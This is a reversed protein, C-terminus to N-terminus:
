RPGRRGCCSTAPTGSSGVPRTTSRWADKPRRPSRWASRASNSTSGSGSRARAPAEEAQVREIWDAAQRALLNVVHLDRDAPCRPTRYHTSLMGVVQGSRGVLPTSQVARVGAALVAGLSPTGVFIPSTTVDEVVTRENHRMATGCSGQGEHVADFFELFPAECGRSAVIKLAGSGRDLFQINGMDASTIAIAADVIELLLSNPDGDRVLQTSVEQLRKMGALDTALREEARKRETIELFFISLGDTSPYLRNEYWADRPPYFYEFTSPTQDTVARRLEMEFRTGVTVPYIDWICRGLIEDRSMGMSECARDNVATYCWDRDLAVFGDSIRQLVAEVRQKAAQTEDRLERERRAAEQRVRNMELHGHVRALLERASFPKILYDDAGAELGEVRSEEGARASLLIVPITQTRPDARLANLLGCGDLRPMM